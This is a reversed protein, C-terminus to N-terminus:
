SVDLLPTLTSCILEYRSLLGIGEINDHRQADLTVLSGRLLYQNLTWISRMFIHAFKILRKSFVIM